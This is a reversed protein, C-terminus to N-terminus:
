KGLFYLYKLLKAIVTQDQFDVKLESMDFTVLLGFKPMSLFQTMEHALKTKNVEVHQWLLPDSAVKRIHTSIQLLSKKDSVKLFSFIKVLLLHSLSFLCTM